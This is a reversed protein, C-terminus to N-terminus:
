LCRLKCYIDYSSNCNNNRSLEVEVYAVISKVNSSCPIEVNKHEVILVDLVHQLESQLEM